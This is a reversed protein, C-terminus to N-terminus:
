LVKKSFAKVLLENELMKIQYNNLDDPYALLELDDPYRTEGHQQQYVHFM